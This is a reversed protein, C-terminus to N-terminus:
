TAGRSQRRLRAARKRCGECCYRADVRRWDPLTDGCWRCCWDRRALRRLMTEARKRRNGNNGTWLYAQYCVRYPPTDSEIWLSEPDPAPMPLKWKRAGVTPNFAQIKRALTDYGVVSPLM